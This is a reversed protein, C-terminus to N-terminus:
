APPLTGEFSAPFDTAPDPGPVTVRVSSDANVPVVFGVSITKFGPGLVSETDQVLQGALGTPEFKLNPKSMPGAHLPTSSGNQVTIDFIVAKGPAGGAVVPTHERYGTASISVSVGAEYTLTGGLVGPKLDPICASLRHLRGQDFFSIREFPDGHDDSQTWSTEDALTSLASALEKQDGPEFILDGDAAADFLTAGALCDAQLEDAMLTFSRGIRAQIAHAWEHAIVLHPWSAGATYGRNM